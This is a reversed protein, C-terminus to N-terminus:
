FRRLGELMSRTTGGTRFHVWHVPHWNADVTGIYKAQNRETGMLVVIYSRQPYSLARYQLEGTESQWRDSGPAGLKRVVDYYDDQAALSLYDQDRSTYVVRARPEPNRYAIVVILCAVIGMAMFALMLRGIRSESSELRRHGPSGSPAPQEAEPLRRPEGVAPMELVRRSYPWVTGGKFELEKLLGVIVVPEDVRSIEGLFRRPIWVEQDSRINAVQVESWTARRFHWENHEFGIIPPYFSFHRV